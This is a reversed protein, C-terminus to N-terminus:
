RTHRSATTLGVRAVHRRRSNRSNDSNSLSAEYQTIYQNRAFSQMSTHVGRGILGRIVRGSGALFLHTNEHM